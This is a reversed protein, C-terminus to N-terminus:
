LTELSLYLYFIICNTVTIRDNFVSKLRLALTFTDTMIELFNKLSKERASCTQVVPQYSAKYMISMLRKCLCANFLHYLVPDLDHSFKLHNSNVRM